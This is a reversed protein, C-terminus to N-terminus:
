EPDPPTYRWARVTFPAGGTGYCCTDGWAIVGTGTWIAYRDTGNGDIRAVTWSDTAPDYIADTGCWDFALVRQELILPEPAAECGHLPTPAIDMWEGAAANFAVTRGDSGSDTWAVLLGGAWATLEPRAGINYSETSLGVEPLSQWSAAARDLQALVLPVPAPYDNTKAGVAYLDTGSWRLVGRDVDLPPGPLVRWEDGVPDYSAVENTAVHWVVFLEGTWVSSVLGASDTGAPPSVSVPPPAILQWSDTGPNYAAGDAQGVGGVILMGDGTWAAQHYRRGSLPSPSITRWTDTSPDYGAGDAFVTSANEDAEGGWVIMETGTWIVSHGGRPALPGVDFGVSDSEEITPQTTTTTTTTTTTNTWAFSDLIRWAQTQTVDDVGDGSAVFVQVQRGDLAFVGFHFDLDVRGSCTQADIPADGAGPAPLFSSTGFAAPWPDGTGQNGLIISILVDDSGLDLLANLPVHPCEAGGPRLPYTGLSLVEEIGQPPSTLAPALIEDSRYWDAPYTIEFGHEESVFRIDRATTPITTTTSPSVTTSSSTDIGAQPSGGGRMLVAIGGVTGLTVAAAVAVVLWTRRTPRPADPIPGEAISAGLQQAARRLTEDVDM